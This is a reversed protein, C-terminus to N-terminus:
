SQDYMRSGRLNQYCEARGIGTYPFDTFCFRFIESGLNRDEPQSLRKYKPRFSIPRAGLRDHDLEWCDGLDNGKVPSRSVLWAESDSEDDGADPDSTRPITV